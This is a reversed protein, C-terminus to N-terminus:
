LVRELYLRYVRGGTVRDMFVERETPAGVPNEALWGRAAWEGRWVAEAEAEGERLGAM